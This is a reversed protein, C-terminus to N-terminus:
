CKKVEFYFHKSIYKEIYNFIEGNLFVHIDGDIFPQMSRKNLDIIALRNFGVVWDKNKTIRTQDPGRHKITLTAKRVDLKSKGIYGVFGCM